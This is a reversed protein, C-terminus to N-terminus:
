ITEKKKMNWIYDGENITRVKNFSFMFIDMGIVESVIM